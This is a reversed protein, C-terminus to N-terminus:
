SQVQLGAYYTISLTYARADLAYPFLDFIELGGRVLLAVSAAERARTSRALMVVSMSSSVILVSYLSSTVVQVFAFIFSKTM